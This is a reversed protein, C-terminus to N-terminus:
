LFAFNVEFLIWIRFAVMLECQSVGSMLYHERETQTLGQVLLKYDLSDKTCIDYKQIFIKANELVRRDKQM